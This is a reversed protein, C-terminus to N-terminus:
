SNLFSMFKELEPDHLDFLYKDKEYFDRKLEVRNTKTFGEYVPHEALAWVGNLTESLVLAKFPAKPKYDAGPNNLDRVNSNLFPDPQCRYTPTIIIWDGSVLGEYHM